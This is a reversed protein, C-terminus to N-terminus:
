LVSGSCSNGPRTPSTWVGIRDVPLRESSRWIESSIGHDTRLAKLENAEGISKEFISTNSNGIRRLRRAYRWEPRAHVRDSGGDGSCVLRNWWAFASRPCRVVGWLTRMSHGVTFFSSAM